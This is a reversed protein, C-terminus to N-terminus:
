ASKVLKKHSFLSIENQPKLSVGFLRKGKPIVSQICETALQLAEDETMNDKWRELLLNEVKHRLCGIVAARCKWFQGSPDVRWIYSDDWILAQSALITGSAQQTPRQLHDALHRALLSPPLPSLARRLGALSRGWLLTSIQVIRSLLIQSHAANGATTAYVKPGVQFSPVELHNLLTSEESHNTSNMFDSCLHPSQRMSSVVVVGYGTKIAVAVNSSEDDSNSAAETIRELAPIRGSNSFVIPDQDDDKAESRTKQYQWPASPLSEALYIKLFSLFLLLTSTSCLRSKSSFGM